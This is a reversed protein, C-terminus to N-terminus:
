GLRLWLVLECDRGSSTALVADALGDSLPDVPLAVLAIHFEMTALFQANAATMDAALLTRSIRLYLKRMPPRFADLLGILGFSLFYGSPYGPSASGSGSRGARVYLFILLLTLHLQWLQEVNNM